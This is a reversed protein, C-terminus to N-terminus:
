STIDLMKKFGPNTQSPRSQNLVLCRFIPFPQPSLCRGQNNQILWEIAVAEFVQDSYLTSDESCM